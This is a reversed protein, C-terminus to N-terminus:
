LGLRSRLEEPVLDLYADILWDPMRGVLSERAAERPVDVYRVPRGLAATLREALGAPDQPTVLYLRAAPRRPEAPKERSAM